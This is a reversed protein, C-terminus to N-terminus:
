NEQHQLARRLKRNPHLKALLDVLDRSKSCNATPKFYCCCRRLSNTSFAYTATYHAWDVTHTDLRFFDLYLPLSPSLTM